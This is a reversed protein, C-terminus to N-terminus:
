LYWSALIIKSENPILRPNRFDLKSSIWDFYSLAIAIAFALSANELNLFGTIISSSPRNMSEISPNGPGYEDYTKM